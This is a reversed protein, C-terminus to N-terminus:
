ANKCLVRRQDEDLSVVPDVVKLINDLYDKEQVMTESIFEENHQEVLDEVNAYADTVWKIESVPIGNRMCFDNLMGSKELVDFFNIIPDYEKIQEMYDSKAIYQRSGLLSDMLKKLELLKSINENQSM